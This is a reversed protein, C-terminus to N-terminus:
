NVIWMTKLFAQSWLNFDCYLVNIGLAHFSYASM